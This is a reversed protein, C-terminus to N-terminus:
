APRRPATAADPRARRPLAATPPIGGGGGPVTVRDGAGIREIEVLPLRTLALHERLEYAKGAPLALADLAALLHDVVALDEGAASAYPWARGEHLAAGLSAVSCTVDHLDCELAYTPASRAEARYNQTPASACRWERWAHVFSPPLIM